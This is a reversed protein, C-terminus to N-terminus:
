NSVCYLGVETYNVGTYPSAIMSNSMKDMISVTGPPKLWAQESGTGTSSTFLGPISIDSTQKQLESLQCKVTRTEGVHIYTHTNPPTPQNITLVVFNFLNFNFYSTTVTHTKHYQFVRQCM